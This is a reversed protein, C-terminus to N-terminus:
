HFFGSNLNNSNTAFSWGYFDDIYDNDDDDVGNNEAPDIIGNGNLDEGSNVWLNKTGIDEHNYDFSLDIVSITVDPAGQIKDWADIADIGGNLSNGLYWQENFYTDNPISKSSHVEVKSSASVSVINKDTLMQEMLDLSLTQGLIELDYFGLSNNRVV